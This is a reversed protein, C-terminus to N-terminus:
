GQVPIAITCMETNDRLFSIFHFLFIPVIFTWLLSKTIANKEKKTEEEGM